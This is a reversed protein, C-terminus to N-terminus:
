RRLWGDPIETLPAPIVVQSGIEAFRESLNNGIIGDPDPSLNMIFNVNMKFCRSMLNLVWEASKVPQNEHEDRNFWTKTLTQCLAGPGVFGDDVDQGAGNEYFSIDTGSIGDTCGINMLLCNPQLKKVLMDVEEFPLMKYSPGGWPANWGDIVLYPIEGYNTLLETIQGLVMERHAPTFENRGLNSTLDLISFYLGAKIGAERFATLFEFVVDTKNTANRVCHESYKSDWLAFGEHHKATLIAFRCGASKTIEAWRRCDLAKPNWDAETFQFQRVNGGNEVGYEWDIVDSNHFQVTASNWHIFTGLRLNIFERQLEVLNNMKVVMAKADAFADKRASNLSTKDLLIM